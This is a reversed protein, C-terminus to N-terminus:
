FKYGSRAIYYTSGSKTNIHFERGNYNRWSIVPSTKIIDGNECLLYARKGIIVDDESGLVFGVPTEKVLAVVYNEM